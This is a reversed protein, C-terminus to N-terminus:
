ASPLARVGVHPAHDTGVIIIPGTRPRAGRPFGTASYPAKSRDVPRLGCPRLVPRSTAGGARWSRAPAMAPRLPRVHYCPAASRDATRLAALTAQPESPRWAVRNGRRRSFRLLRVTWLGRASPRHGAGVRARPDASPPAGTEDSSALRGSVVRATSQRRGGGRIVTMSRKPSWIGARWGGGERSGAGSMSRAQRSGFCPAMWPALAATPALLTCCSAAVPSM